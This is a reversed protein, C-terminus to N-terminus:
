EQNNMFEGIEITFGAYHGDPLRTPFAYQPDTLLAYIATDQHAIKEPTNLRWEHEIEEMRGPYQQVGLLSTLAWYVYEAVQCEYECTKDDYTFWASSPYKRPVDQFFGGRAHDMAEAVVTGPSEGWVGPYANAYGYQTILHLVEELTADFEGQLSGGPLTEEAYLNQLAESGWSGVFRDFDFRREEREDRFMVLTARERNLAEIVAPNDPHGDEDNDLYEAMIAAAHLLKEDSVNETALILVGFIDVQKNFTNDTQPKSGLFSATAFALTAIIPLISQMDM